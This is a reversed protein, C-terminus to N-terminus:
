IVNPRAISRLNGWPSHASWPPANDFRPCFTSTTREFAVGWHEEPFAQYILTEELAAKVLEGSLDLRLTALKEILQVAKQRAAAVDEGAYIANLKAAVHAGAHVFITALRPRDRKADKIKEFKTSPRSYRIPRPSLSGADSVGTGAM